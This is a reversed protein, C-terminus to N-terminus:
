AMAWRLGGPLTKPGFEVHLVRRHSPAKAPSSAHLILPRIVVLGGRGTVCHTQRAQASLEEIEEADLLQDHTGAIVRLPGNDFGCPDLHFRLTVMQRLLEVPPQVHVVRAKESWPGFGPVDLRERVAISRDQHWPVTWNAAGVKDFLIARVPVAAAATADIVDTVCPLRLISQVFPQNLLNRRAFAVGRRVRASAPDTEMAEVADIADCVAQPCLFDEEVVVGDRQLATSRSSPQTHLIM